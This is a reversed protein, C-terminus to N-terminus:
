DSSKHNLYASSYLTFVACLLILSIAGVPSSSTFKASMNNSGIYTAVSDGWLYLLIRCIAFSLPASIFRSLIFIRLSINTKAVMAKIQAWISLSSFSILASIICVSWVSGIKSISIAGCTVELIGNIIGSLYKSPILEAIKLTEIIGGLFSFFIVFGCITLMSYIANNVSTVISNSISLYTIDRIDKELHPLNNKKGFFAGVILSTITCSLFIVVGIQASGFMGIGVATITFAPGANVCFSLMGEAQKKTIVGKELYDSILRAGVPFGGILSMLIVAGCCKPLHYIHKTIPVLPASFIVSISTSAIISSIIMFPFLSPILTQGCVLIGKYTSNLVEKGCLFLCLIIVILIFATFFNKYSSKQLM